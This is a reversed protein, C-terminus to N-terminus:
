DVVISQLNDNKDYYKISNGPKSCICDFFHELSISINELEWYEIKWGIGIKKIFLYKEDDHWKYQFQHRTLYREIEERDM